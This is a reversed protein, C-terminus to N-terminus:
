LMCENVTHLGHEGDQHNYRVIHRTLKWYFATDPTRVGYIDIKRPVVSEIPM